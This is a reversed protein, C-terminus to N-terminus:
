GVNRVCVLNQASRNISCVTSWYGCTSCFGWCYEPLYYSGVIAGNVSGLEVIWINCDMNRTTGAETTSPPADLCLFLCATLKPLSCASFSNLSLSGSSYNSQKSSNSPLAGLLPVRHRYTVPKSSNPLYWTHVYQCSFVALLSFCPHWKFCWISSRQNGDHLGCPIYIDRICM